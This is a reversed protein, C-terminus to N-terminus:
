QSHSRVLMLNSRIKQGLGYQSIFEWYHFHAISVNVSYDHINVHPQEFLFQAYRHYGTGNPPHPQRYESLATGQGEMPGGEPGGGVDGSALADGPINVVLWHRIPAATPNDRSPADPDIMMLVYSKNSDADAYRIHPARALQPTQSLSEHPTHGCNIEGLPDSYRVNLPPSTCAFFDSPPPAPPATASNNAPAPKNHLVMAVVLLLTVAIGAGLGVKLHLVKKLHCSQGGLRTVPNVSESAELLTEDQRMMLLWGGLVQLRCIVQAGAM